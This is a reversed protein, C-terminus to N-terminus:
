RAALESLMHFVGVDVRDERLDAAMVGQDTVLRYRVDKGELEVRISRGNDPLPITMTLASKQHGPAIAFNLRNLQRTLRNLREAHAELEEWIPRLHEALDPGITLEVPLPRYNRDNTGLVYWSLCLEGLCQVNPAPQWSIGAEPNPQADATGIGFVGEGGRLNVVWGSDGRYDGSSPHRLSGPHTHVVGLPHLQRRGQRVVHSGFTQAASNFWVHAEGAERGAGAPLTALVLAEDARRIGLLIWGTEERGRDSQRHATYEAFLTRSVTDALM